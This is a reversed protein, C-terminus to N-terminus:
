RRAYKIKGGKGRSGGRHQDINKIPLTVSAVPLEITRIFYVIKKRFLDVM